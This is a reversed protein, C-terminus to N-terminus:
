KEKTIKGSLGPHRVKLWEPIKAKCDRLYTIVLVEMLENWDIKKGAVKIMEAKIQYMEVFLKDSVAITTM